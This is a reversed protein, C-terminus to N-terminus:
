RVEGTAPDVGTDIYGALLDALYQRALREKGPSLVAQIDFFDLPLVVQGANQGALLGPLLQYLGSNAPLISVVWHSQMGAPMPQGGILQVNHQALLSLMAPDEVGPALYVTEVFKDLLAQAAAQWEASSASAPLEIYLPYDVIPGHYPNCLGCFLTSGNLFGNRASLGSASGSTSIVGIRWDPTLMAALLGAMFGQQDARLPGAATLNQAPSVSELGVSLFQVQPAAAALEMLAPGAISGPYAVVLRLNQSLEGATLVQRLEWQLEAAGEAQQWGQLVAQSAPDDASGPHLLVVLGPTDTATPSPEPTPSSILEPTAAPITPTLMEPTAAPPVSQGCAVLSAFLFIQVVFVVFTALIKTKKDKTRM